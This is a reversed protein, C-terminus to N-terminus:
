RKSNILKVFNIVAILFCVCALILKILKGGIFYSLLFCVAAVFSCIGAVKFNKM